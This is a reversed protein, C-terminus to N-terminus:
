ETEGGSLWRGLTYAGALEQDSYKPLQLRSLSALIKESNDRRGRGYGCSLMEYGEIRESLEVECLMLTVLNASTPEHSQGLGTDRKASEIGVTVEDLFDGGAILKAANFSILDESDDKALPYNMLRNLEACYAAHRVDDPSVLVASVATAVNPVLLMLFPLILARIMTANIDSTVKM